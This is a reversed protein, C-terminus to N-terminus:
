DLWKVTNPLFTGNNEQVNGSTSRGEKVCTVLLAKLERVKGPYKLYLNKKEGPDDKINFLQVEPLGVEEKGSVPSTWGGSGACMILKWKDKRIAFYGNSSLHITYNRKYNKKKNFLLPLLSYSDEGANDPLANKFLDACTAMVDNLSITIACRSNEAVMEPWKVFFPIHHGGEWIDAKIGRFKYSPNHDFKKISNLEGYMGTGDTAPSGNDSAFFIITNKEIGADTVAKIIEGVTWDTQQVFDGYLGAKSTGKFQDAPAIPSHPSTLPIYLFFPQDNKAKEKIYTTAKNTLSPLINELRWGDVMVGPHGYMDAPKMKGPTQVLRDNEIFCYPPYNPVDTGFYYDFGKTLPGNEIRASFDIYKELQWRVQESNHGKYLSDRFFTGTKLPWNWGLHWKGICATTYGQQQMLQGITLRGEEILPPDYLGLVGSKLKSRWPYRGTLLGYRTPTCVASASHADTFTMGLSALKDINPTQIKSKDNLCSIDGYGLDDALIYIINPHNNQAQMAAVCLVCCLLFITKKKMFYQILGSLDCLSNKQLMSIIKKPMFNQKDFFGGSSIHRDNAVFLLQSLLLYM